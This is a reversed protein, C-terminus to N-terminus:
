PYDILQAFLCFRCGSELYQLFRPQLAWNLMLAEIWICLLVLNKAEVEVGEAIDSMPPLRFFLVLWPRFSQCSFNFLTFRVFLIFPQLQSYTRSCSFQNITLSRIFVPAAMFLASYLQCLRECRIFLFSMQRSFVDNPFLCKFGYGFSHFLFIFPFPIGGVGDVRIVPGDWRLSWCSPKAGAPKSINTVLM